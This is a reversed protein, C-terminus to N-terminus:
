FCARVSLTRNTEEVPHLVQHCVILLVARSLSYFTLRTERLVSPMLTGRNSYVDSDAILSRTCKRRSPLYKFVLYLYTYKGTPQVRNAPTATESLTQLVPGHPVCEADDASCCLLLHTFRLPARFWSAMTHRGLRSGASHRTNYMTGAARDRTLHVRAAWASRWRCGVAPARGPRRQGQPRGPARRTGAPHGGRVCVRVHRVRGLRCGWVRCPAARTEWTRAVCALCAFCYSHDLHPTPDGRPDGRRLYLSALHRVRPSRPSRPPPNSRVCMGLRGEKGNGRIQLLM